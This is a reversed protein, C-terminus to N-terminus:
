IGLRYLCLSYRLTSSDKDTEKHLNCLLITLSVTKHNNTNLRYFLPVICSKKNFAHGMTM